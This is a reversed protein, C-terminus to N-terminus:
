LQPILCKHVSMLTFRTIVKQGLQLAAVNVNNWLYGYKNSSLVSLMSRTQLRIM